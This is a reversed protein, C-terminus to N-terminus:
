RYYKQVVMIAEERQNEESIENGQQLMKQKKLEEKKRYKSKLAAEIGQRGRENKQIIRIATEPNAELVAKYEIVEEEPLSTDHFQVLLKDIAQNREDRQKNPDEEKFYRPLIFEISDVPLKLDMLLEDLNVFDSQM